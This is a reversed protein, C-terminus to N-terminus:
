PIGDQQKTSHEFGQRWLEVKDNPKQEITQGSVEYLKEKTFSM